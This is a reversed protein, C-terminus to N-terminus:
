INNEVEWSYLDEACLELNELLKAEDINNEDIGNFDNAVSYSEWNKYENYSLDKVYDFRVSIYYEGNAKAYTVPVGNFNFMKFSTGDDSFDLAEVRDLGLNKLNKISFTKSM